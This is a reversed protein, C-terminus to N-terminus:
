GVKQGKSLTVRKKQKQEIHDLYTVDGAAIRLVHSFLTEPKLPRERELGVDEAWEVGSMVVCSTQWNIAHVHKVIVAAVFEAPLPFRPLGMLDIAGYSFAEICRRARNRDSATWVRESNLFAVDEDSIDVYGEAALAKLAAVSNRFRLEM